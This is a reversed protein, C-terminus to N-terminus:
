RIEKKCANIDRKVLRLEKKMQTIHKKLQKAEEHTDWQATFTIENGRFSAGMIEAVRNKFDKASM